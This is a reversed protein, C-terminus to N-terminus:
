TREWDGSKGGSKKILRVHDIEAGKDTSKIMDYVCLLASTVGTLAEMEVGTRAEASARCTIEVAVSSENLRIDVAVHDLPLPHCLPILDACRKAGQIGALQATSQWDGKGIDNNKLNRFQEATVRLAGCAEARRRSAAKDGVDAMRIPRGRSM